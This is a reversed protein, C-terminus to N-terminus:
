LPNAFMVEKFVLLIKIIFFNKGLFCNPMAQRSALSYNNANLRCSPPYSLKRQSPPPTDLPHVTLLTLFSLHSLPKLSLGIFTLQSDVPCSTSLLPFFSFHLLLFFFFVIVVSLLSM